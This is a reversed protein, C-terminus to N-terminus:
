VYGASQWPAIQTRLFDAATPDFRGRLLKHASVRQQTATGHPNRDYEDRAEVMLQYEATNVSIM